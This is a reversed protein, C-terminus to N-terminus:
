HTEPHGHNSGKWTTRDRHCVALMPRGSGSPRDEQRRKRVRSKLWDVWRRMGDGHLACVEFLESAPNLRHVSARFGKLDFPVNSLLDTKNLVVLGAARVLEPHKRPKDDGGAVSFVAVTVDQGVDVPVPGVLTGVNEIFLVDLRNLDLCRIAEHVDAAVAIGGPGTNVQVVQESHRNMRNADVHSSVDCAIVGMRVNPLRRITEDILSTRGCGPGGCLSVAFVGGSSRFIDRNIEAVPSTASHTVAVPRM